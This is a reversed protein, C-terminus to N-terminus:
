MEGLDTDCYTAVSQIWQPPLGSAKWAAAFAHPKDYLRELVILFEAQSFLTYAYVTNLESEPGYTAIADRLLDRHDEVFVHLRAPYDADSPVASGLQDLIQVSLPRYSQAHALGLFEAEATALIDRFEFGPLSPIISSVREVELDFLEMLAVLRYIAHQETKPLDVVPKYLLKHSVVSWADQAATRVQIECEIPESDDDEAPAQVQVHVGSYSLKEPDTVVRKDEPEGLVNLGSERIATVFADVDSPMSVIVRAGAKDTVEGWADEYGKEVVKARYSAVDKERALVTVQIQSTRAIEELEVKVAKAARAYRPREAKYRILADDLNM